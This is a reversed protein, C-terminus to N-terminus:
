SEGGLYWALVPPHSRGQRAAGASLLGAEVTCMNRVSCRVLRGERALLQEAGGIFVGEPFM